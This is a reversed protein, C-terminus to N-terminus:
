QRRVNGTGKWASLAWRGEVAAHRVSQGPRVIGLHDTVLYPNPAFEFLEQYRQRERDLQLHASALKDNQHRLEEQAVRLEELAVKLDELTEAPAGGASDASNQRAHPHQLQGPHEQKVIDEQHRPIRSPTDRGM